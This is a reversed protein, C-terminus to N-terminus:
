NHLEMIHQLQEETLAEEVALLYHIELDLVEKDLNFIVLDLVHQNFEQIELMDVLEELHQDLKVQSIKTSTLDVVVAEALVVQEVTAEVTQTLFLLEAVEAVAVQQM